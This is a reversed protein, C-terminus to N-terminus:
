HDGIPDGHAVIASTGAHFYQESVGVEFFTAPVHYRDLVSLLRLTYPGPGDDFTLAIERHQSGAVRVYPTYALTRTIAANEESQEAVAFSDAGNGSLTRIRAFFGNQLAAANHHSASSGGSGAGAILGLILALAAVVALAGARRRRHQVAVPLARADKVGRASPRPRAPDRLATYGDDM